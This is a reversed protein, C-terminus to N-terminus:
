SPWKDTSCRFKAPPPPPLRTYQLCAQGLFCPILTTKPSKLPFESITNLYWFCGNELFLTCKWSDQWIKPYIKQAFGGKTTLNKSFPLSFIKNIENWKMEHKNSLDVSMVFYLLFLYILSVVCDSVWIDLHWSSGYLRALLAFKIGIPSHLFKPPWKPM